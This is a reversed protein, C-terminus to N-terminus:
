ETKYEGTEALDIDVKEIEMYESSGALLSSYFNREIKEKERYINSVLPIGGGLITNKTGEIGMYSFVTMPGLRKFLKYHEQLQNELLGKGKEYDGNGLNVVFENARNVTGASIGAYYQGVVDIANSDKQLRACLNVADLDAKYDDQTLKAGNGATGYVDGVYGANAELDYIGNCLWGAFGGAIEWDKSYNNLMTASIVSMHALDNKNYFNKVGEEILKEEKCSESHNFSISDLLVIIEEENLGYKMLVNELEDKKHVRAIERWVNGKMNKGDFDSYNRSALIAFYRQNVNEVNECRMNYYLKYMIEATQDDFGFHEKMAEVYLEKQKVERELWKQELARAWDMNLCDVQYDIRIGDFISSHLCDIGSKVSCRYGDLSSYIAASAALFEDIQELKKELLREAQEMSGLLGSVSSPYGKRNMLGRVYDMQRRLNELDEKLADEDVYGIGSLYGAICGRYLKNNQVTEELYILMGRLVPLHLEHYYERVSDYADGQLAGKTNELNTIREQLANVREIAKGLNQNMEDLQAIVTGPSMELGM